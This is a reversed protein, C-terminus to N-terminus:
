YKCVLYDNEDLWDLIYYNKNNKAIQYVCHPIEYHREKCYEIISINNKLISLACVDNYWPFGHKNLWIVLEFNGKRAAYSCCYEEFTNLKLLINTYQVFQHYKMPREVKKIYMNKENLWQFCLKVCNLDNTKISQTTWLKPPYCKSILYAKTFSNHINKINKKNIKNKIYGYSFTKNIDYGGLQIKLNKSTYGLNTISDYDLFEILTISVQTTM